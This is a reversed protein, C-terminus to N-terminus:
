NEVGILVRVADIADANPTIAKRTDTEAYAVQHESPTRGDSIDVTEGTQEDRFRFSNEDLVEIEFQSGSELDPLGDASERWYVGKGWIANDLGHGERHVTDTEADIRGLELTHLKSGGASFRHDGLARGQRLEIVPADPPATMSRLSIWDVDVDVLYRKGKELGEIAGFQSDHTYTVTDGSVFSHGPLWIADREEDVANLLLGTRAPSLFEHESTEKANGPHLDVPAARALQITEDDVVLVIYTEGDVLGDIPSPRDGGARYVIEDGTAYGHGPVRIADRAFDVGTLDFEEVGDDSSDPAGAAYIRGDVTTKVDAFGLTAVISLTGRGGVYLDTTGTVYAPQKGTAIVKVNGAESRIEAAPGVTARVTLEVHVVAITITWRSGDFKDPNKRQAIAEIQNSTRAFSRAQSHGNAKVLVTGTASISTAGTILAESTAAGRGYSAAILVPNPTKFLSTTLAYALAESQADSNITVAGSSIVETDHLEVLASTHRVSVAVSMGTLMSLVMGPLASAFSQLGFLIGAAWGDVTPLRANAESNITVDGARITAGTIEIRSDLVYFDVVPSAVAAPRNVAQITVAGATGAPDGSADILVGATIRHNAGTAGVADIDISLGAKAKAYSEALRIKRDTDVIAFYTTGDELGPVADGGGTFYRVASGTELDHDSGFDITDAGHDVSNSPDFAGVVTRSEITVERTRKHILAADGGTGDGLTIDGAEPITVGDQMRSGPVVHTLIRAGQRIHVREADLDVHGSDGISYATMPDGYPDGLMRTSILANEAVVIVDSTNSSAAQTEGRVYLSAGRGDGFAEITIRDNGPGLLIVLSGTPHDFEVDSMFGNKSDLVLKTGDESWRLVLEDANPTATLEREEDTGEVTIQPTEMGTYRIVTGDLEVNGAGTEQPDPNVGTSSFRDEHFFLTDFGGEGGAIVGTLSARGGLYFQDLTDDAGTLNEMGSFDMGHVTGSDPGDLHWVTNEAPGVLTDDAGSGTIAEMGAFSIGLGAIEGAGTGSIRWITDVETGTLLDRDGGGVIADFNEFSYGDVSGAREGTMRWWNAHNPGVLTHSGGVGRIHEVGAFSLAPIAAVADDNPNGYVNGRGQGQLRWTAFMTEPTGVVLRDRGTGTDVAISPLLVIDDSELLEAFSEGDVVITDAGPGTRIDLQSIDGFAEDAVVRDNDNRDLVRIRRTGDGDEVLTVVLVQDEYGIGGVAARDNAGTVTVIVEARTGDATLVEFIDTATQGARLADTDVDSNDLTYVWAGNSGLSFTGYTGVTNTQAQFEEEGADLDDVTLTKEARAAAPDDETVAGAMAGGVTANATAPSAAEDAGTVTIAVEFRAGDASFLEFRDTETDGAALTDIAAGDGRDLTYVWKGRAGLSFAGYTGQTHAQAQFGGDGADPDSVSLAGTAVPDDVAAAGADDGDIVAGDGAGTVTILVEARTGDASFAYFREIATQDARLANTDPDENNLTYTWAGDEELAFTGYTGEIPRRTRSDTAAGVRAAGYVAAAEMLPAFSAEGDDEDTVTLKGIAEGANADDETVSGTFKGHITADATSASGVEDAGVVTILVVTPTGEASITRFSDTSTQGAELADTAPKANDLRYIWRGDASLSFSGYAGETDVQAKYGGQGADPDSLGLKGTAVAARPDDKQAVGTAQLEDREITLVTEIQDIGEHSLVVHGNATVTGGDEPDGSVTVEDGPFKIVFLADIGTDSGPDAGRILGPVGGGPRLYFWDNRDSGVLNDMGSFALRRSDPPLSPESRSDPVFRDGALEPPPVSYLRGAGPGDLEWLNDTLPALLTDEGEGGEVNEVGTVATYVTAPNDGAGLAARIFTVGFENQVTMDWLTSHENIVSLTDEGTGAHIVINPIAGSREGGDLSFSGIDLVVRDRGQGTRIEVAGITDLRQQALVRGDDDTDLIQVVQAAGSQGEIASEDEWLRVLLSNDHQEASQGSLDLLLDANLLLRPELVEMVIRRLNSYLPEPRYPAVEGHRGAPRGGNGLCTALSARCRFQPDRIGQKPANRLFPLAM